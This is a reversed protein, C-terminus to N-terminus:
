TVEAVSMKNQCLKANDTLDNAIAGVFRVHSSAVVAKIQILSFTPEVLSCENSEKELYPVSVHLRHDGQM